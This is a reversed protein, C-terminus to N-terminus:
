AKVKNARKWLWLWWGKPIIDALSKKDDFPKGKTDSCLRNWVSNGLQVSHDEEYSGIDARMELDDRVAQLTEQLHKIRKHAHILQVDSPRLVPGTRQQRKLNQSM